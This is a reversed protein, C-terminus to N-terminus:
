HTKVASRIIGILTPVYSIAIGLLVFGAVAAVIVMGNSFIDAADFGWDFIVGTFLDM